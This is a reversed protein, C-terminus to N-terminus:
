GNTGSMIWRSSRCLFGLGDKVSVDSFSNPGCGGHFEDDGDDDDSGGQGAATFTFFLTGESLCFAFALKQQFVLSLFIGLSLRFPVLPRDLLHDIDEGASGGFDGDGAPWSGSMNEREKRWGRAEAMTKGGGEAVWTVIM